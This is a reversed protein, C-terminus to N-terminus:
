IIDNICKILGEIQDCKYIMRKAPYFDDDVIYWEDPLKYVIFEGAYKDMSAAGTRKEPPIYQRKDPDLFTIIIYGHTSKEDGNIIYNFGDIKNEEKIQKSLISIEDDKFALATYYFNYSYFETEDIEKYYHNFQEFLKIM